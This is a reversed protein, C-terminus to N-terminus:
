LKASISMTGLPHTRINGQSKRSLGGDFWLGGDVGTLLTPNITVLM